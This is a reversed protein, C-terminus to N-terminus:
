GCRCRAWVPLGRFLVELQAEAPDRVGKRPPLPFLNLARAEGGVCRGGPMWTGLQLYASARSLCAGARPRAGVPGV